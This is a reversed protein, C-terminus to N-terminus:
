HSGDKPVQLLRRLSPWPGRTPWVIAARQDVFEKVLEIVTQLGVAPYALPLGIGIAVDIAKLVWM